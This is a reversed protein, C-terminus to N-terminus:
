QLEAIRASQGPRSAAFRRFERIKNEMLDMVRKKGSRFLSFYIYQSVQNREMSSLQPMNLAVLEEIRQNLRVRLLGLSTELDKANPDGEEYLQVKLGLDEMESITSRIRSDADYAATSPVQGLIARVIQGNEALESADQGEYREKVEALNSEAISLNTANIPNDVLAPSVQSTQFDLLAKEADELETRYIELQSELFDRTLHQRGDPDPPVGRRFPGRHLHGSQLGTGSRSGPGRHPLPPCRGAQDQGDIEAEGPGGSPDRKPCPRCLGFRRASERLAHHLGMDRVMLEMFEPSTLLMNM